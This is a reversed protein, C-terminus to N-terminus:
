DIYKERKVEEGCFAYSMTQFTLGFYAECIQGIYTIYTIHSRILDWKMICFASLFTHYTIIGHEFKNNNNNINTEHMLLRGFSRLPAVSQKGALKKSDATVTLWIGCLWGKKPKWGRRKWSSSSSSLCPLVAGDLTSATTFSCCLRLQLFFIRESQSLTCWGLM